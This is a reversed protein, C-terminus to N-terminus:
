LAVKVFVAIPGFNTTLNEKFFKLATISWRVIFDGLKRKITKEWEVANVYKPFIEALLWARYIRAHQMIIKQNGAVINQRCARFGISIGWKCSTTM